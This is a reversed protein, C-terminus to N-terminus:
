CPETRELQISDNNTGGEGKFYNFILIGAVLVILLGLVLSVISQNAEYEYWNRIKQEM